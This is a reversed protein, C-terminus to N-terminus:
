AVPDPERQAATDPAARRSAVRGELRRGMILTAPLLAVCLVAAVALQWGVQGLGAGHVTAEHVPALFYYTPGFRAPWLPLDPWMFFIVPYFLLLGGGKWAAFMTNIDSAWCGLILGVQAMMVAGLLISPLLVLPAAGLVGNAALTITGATVALLAGFIGKAALVEVMRSPTVLLADLTRSQKEEILSAAPIMVGALAVAMIVVLPLMRLALPIGEDGVAILEVEVPPTSGELARVLDLVSVAVLTRTSTHSGGGVFLGLEPHEGARVAEDFGAQLVLGADLDDAEVLQRLTAEDDLLSVELGTVEQAAAVLESAGRDVIGLRPPTDLLGGFVGRVLLTVVVPIFLAWLVLPSRPGLRLDKLLLTRIRDAPVAAVGKM